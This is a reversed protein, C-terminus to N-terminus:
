YGRPRQTIWLAHKDTKASHTELNIERQKLLVVCMKKKKQSRFKPNPYLPSM